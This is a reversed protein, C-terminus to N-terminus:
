IMTRFNREAVLRDVEQQLARIRKGTPSSPRELKRKCGIRSRTQRSGIHIESLPPDCLLKEVCAAAKLSV